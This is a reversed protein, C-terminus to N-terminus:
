LTTFPVSLTDCASVSGGEFGRSFWHARQAGTGHTPSADAGFHSAIELEARAADTPADEGRRHRAAADAAWVGAYCEAQLEQRMTQRRRSEAQDPAFFRGRDRLDGVLLQVHHAYEHAVVFPTLVSVTELDIYITEDAPLYAGAFAQLEDVQPSEATYYRLRPSRYAVPADPFQEAFARSWFADIDEAARDIPGRAEAIRLESNWLARLDPFLAVGLVLVALGLYLAPPTRHQAM